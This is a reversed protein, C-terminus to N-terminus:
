ITPWASARTCEERILRRTWRSPHSTRGGTWGVSAFLLLTVRTVVTPRAEPQPPCTFGRYEAEEPEWLCERSLAAAPDWLLEAARELFLCLLKHDWVGAVAPNSLDPSPPFFVWGPVDPACLCPFMFCGYRVIYIVMAALTTCIGLAILAGSGHAFCTAPGDSLYPISNWLIGFYVMSIPVSWLWLSSIPFTHWLFFQGYTWFMLYTHTAIALITTTRGVRPAMFYAITMDKTGGTFCGAWWVAALMGGPIGSMVGYMMMVAGLDGAPNGTNLEMMGIPQFLSFYSIFVVTTIETFVAWYCIM